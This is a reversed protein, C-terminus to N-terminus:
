EGLGARRRLWRRLLNITIRYGTSAKSVLQYGLLHGIAEDSINPLSEGTAIRELSREEDPFYAHLLEIIQSFKDTEERVIQPISVGVLARTVTLPRKTNGAIIRSCVLRTLFPHGGTEDVVDRLANENWYVSMGKGLARVM